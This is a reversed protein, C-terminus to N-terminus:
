IISKYLATSEWNGWTTLLELSLVAQIRTAKPSLTSSVYSAMNAKNVFMYVHASRFMYVHAVM